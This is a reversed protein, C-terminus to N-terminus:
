CKETPTGCNSIVPQGAVNHLRKHIKPLFYLKGFNIAKRYECLFYKLQKETIYGREKLSSFMKNSMKALKSLIVIVNRGWIVICSGKDAKKIIIIRDDALSRIVNWDERSLNSYKIDANPLELLENEVQSLFVECCLHGQPPQWRSKLIFVPAKSLNQSENRFYWKLRMRKCFENFDGRLESENLKKQIPAFDLDKEM